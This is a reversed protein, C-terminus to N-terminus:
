RKKRNEKAEEERILADLKKLYANETNLYELELLMEEKSLKHYDKPSVRKRKMKSKKGRNDKLLSEYGEKDLRVIWQYILNGRSIKYKRALQNLSLLGKKYETVVKLKLNPSYNNNSSKLLLGSVGYKRFQTIWHYLESDSVKFKRCVETQLQNKKLVLDLVELKQELSFKQKREM